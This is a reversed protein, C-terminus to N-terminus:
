DKGNYIHQKLYQYHSSMTGVKKREEKLQSYIKDAEAMNDKLHREFTGIEANRHQDFAFPLYNMGALISYWGDNFGFGALPGGNDYQPQNVLAPMTARANILKVVVSEPIKTNYKVDKWYPTDERSTLAYHCVLFDRILELFMTISKNYAAIDAVNYDNRGKLVETLLHVESQFIQIGTSELPEIFGSSLGVGVCNKVWTRRHKGVRIKIHLANM